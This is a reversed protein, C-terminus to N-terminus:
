IKGLFALISLVLGGITAIASALIAFIMLFGKSGTKKMIILGDGKKIEPLQEVILRYTGTETISFEAVPVIRSGTMDKRSGLHNVVNTAEFHKGDSLSTLRYLVKTPMIGLMAPRRYAIEYAGPESLQFDPLPRDLPLSVKKGGYIEIIRGISRILFWLGAVFVLPFLIKLMM